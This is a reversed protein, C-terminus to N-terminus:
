RKTVHGRTVLYDLQEVGGTVDTLRIEDGPGLVGRPSTLSKGAAVQYPFRQEPPAEPPPPPPGGVSDDEAGNVAPPENPPEPAAPPPETPPAGNKADVRSRLRGVLEVLEPNKLGETEVEEGLEFGLLEAQEALEKNSAM